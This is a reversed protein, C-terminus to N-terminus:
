NDFFCSVWNQLKCGLSDEAVPLRGDGGPESASAFVSLGQVLAEKGIELERVQLQVFESSPQATGCLDEPQPQGDIGEGLNKRHKLETGARLVHSMRNDVGQSPAQGRAAQREEGTVPEIEVEIGDRGM